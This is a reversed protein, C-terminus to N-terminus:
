SFVGVILASAAYCFGQNSNTSRFRCGRRCREGFRLPHLGRARFSRNRGCLFRTKGTVHADKRFYNNRRVVNESTQTMSQSFMCNQYIDSRENYKREKVRESSCEWKPSLNRPIRTLHVNRWPAITPPNILVAAKNEGHNMKPLALGGNQVSGQETSWLM